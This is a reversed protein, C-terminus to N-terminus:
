SKDQRIKTYLNRMDEPAEPQQWDHLRIGIQEALEQDKARVFVTGESNIIFSEDPNINSQENFLMQLNTMDMTVYLSGLIRDDKVVPVSFVVANIDGLATNPMYVIKQSGQLSERIGAFHRLQLDPGVLGRGYIDILGAHNFENTLLRKDLDLEQLSQGKSIENAADDAITAMNRFIVDLQGDVKFRNQEVISLMEIQVNNVLLVSIRQRFLFLIVLSVLVLLLGAFIIRKMALARIKTKENIQEM